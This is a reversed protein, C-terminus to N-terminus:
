ETKAIKKIFDTIVNNAKDLESKEPTYEPKRHENDSHFYGSNGYLLNNRIKDDAKNLNDYSIEGGMYERSVDASLLRIYKHDAKRRRILNGEGYEEYQDGWLPPRDKSLFRPYDATYSINIPREMLNNQRVDMSGGVIDGDIERPYERYQTTSYQTKPLKIPKKKKGLTNREGNYSNIFERM